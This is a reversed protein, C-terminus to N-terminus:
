YNNAAPYTISAAYLYLSIRKNKTLESVDKLIAENSSKYLICSIYSHSCLYVLINRSNFHMERDRRLCSTNRMERDRERQINPVIKLLSLVFEFM